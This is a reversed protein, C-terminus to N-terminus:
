LNTANFLLVHFALEGAHLWLYGNCFKRPSMRERRFVSRLWVALYFAHKRWQYHGGSKKAEKKQSAYTASTIREMNDLPKHCGSYKFLQESLINIKWENLFSVLLIDSWFKHMEQSPSTGPSGPQIWICDHLVQRVQLNRPLSSCYHWLALHKYSIRLQYLTYSHCPTRRM